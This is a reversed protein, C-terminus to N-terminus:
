LVMEYVQRDVNWIYGGEKTWYVEALCHCDESANGHDAWAFGKKIAWALQANTMTKTKM